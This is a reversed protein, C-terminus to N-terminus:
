AAVSSKEYLLASRAASQHEIMAKAALIPMPKGFYYGQLQDCGCAALFEMQEVTEVGEALSTIKLDRALQCTARIIHRNEPIAALDRVFSRDIKLTDFPFSSLTSLSSYGIGFDDMSFAIGLGRLEHLVALTQENRELFISETIELNLRAPAIGSAVIARMVSFGLAGSKVQLPSVNVAVSISAPWTAATACAKRLVWDGIPGILGLEEAIPIFEMPPILGRQPHTWRLLAEFCTVEGTRADVIPQYALSLEDRDLAMKLDLEVARKASEQADMEPDYLLYGGRSDKKARYLALDAKKLLGAPDSDHVHALAIGLTVGIDVIRADVSYPKSIAAILREAMAEIDALDRAGTQVFVFEDGGFRAITDGPQACARMRESAMQLVADGAGHGLTDNLIKFRDLDLFLVAVMYDPNRSKLANTLQDTLHQRNSLGTLGDHWALHTIREENRIRDTIDAFTAVSGGDQMTRHSVSITRGDNLDVSFTASDGQALSALHRKALKSFNQRAAIDPVLQKLQFATLGVASQDFPLAFMRRFQDNLVAVRQGADLMCLGQAMNELAATFQLNQRTLLTEQLVLKDSQALREDRLRDREEISKQLVLVSRAIAGIEDSREQGHVAGHWDGRSLALVTATIASLPGVIARTVASAMLGFIAFILIALGILWKVLSRGQTEGSRVMEQALTSLETAPLFTCLRTDLEFNICRAVLEHREDMLLQDDRPSLVMSSRQLMGAQSVVQPGRLLALGIGSLSSFEVLQPEKQRIIRHGILAGTLDGFDDFVPYTIVQAVPGQGSAGVAARAGADLLPVIQVAGATTERQSSALVAAVQIFLPNAALALNALRIDTEMSDAGIVQGKANVVLIGDLDTFRRLPALMEAIAVVNGSALAKQIESRRSVDALASLKTSFQRDLRSRALRADGDLREALTHASLRALEEGQIALGRNFMVITATALFALSVFAVVLIAATFRLALSGFLAKHSM